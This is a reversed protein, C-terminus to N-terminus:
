HPNEHKRWLMDIEGRTKEEGGLGEHRFFFGNVYLSFHVADVQRLLAFSKHLHGGNMHFNHTYLHKEFSPRTPPQVLGDSFINTLNLHDGRSGLNNLNPPSFLFYKFGGGLQAQSTPDDEDQIWFWQSWTFFSILVKTVCWANGMPKAVLIAFNAVSQSQWLGIWDSPKKKFDGVEILRWLCRYESLVLMASSFSEMKYPVYIKFHDLRGARYTLKGSYMLLCWWRFNLFRVKSAVRSWGFLPVQDEASLYWLNGERIRLQLWNLLKIKCYFQLSEGDMDKIM